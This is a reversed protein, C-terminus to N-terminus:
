IKVNCIAARPSENHKGFEETDILVSKTWKQLFLM